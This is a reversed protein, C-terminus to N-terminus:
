ISAPARSAPSKFVNDRRQTHRDGLPGKLSPLPRGSALYMQMGRQRSATTRPRFRRRRGARAIFESGIKQWRRWDSTIAFEVLSSILSFLQVFFLRIFFLFAILPQTLIARFYINITLLYALTHTHTRESSSPYSDLFDFAFRSLRYIYHLTVAFPPM